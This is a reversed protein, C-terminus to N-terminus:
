CSWPFFQEVNGGKTSTVERASRCVMAFHGTKHCKSCNKGRAPCIQFMQFMASGVSCEQSEERACKSSTKKWFKTKM